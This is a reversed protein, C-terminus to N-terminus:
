LNVARQFGAGAAHVMFINPTTPGGPAPSMDAGPLAKWLRISVTLFSAEPVLAKGRRVNCAQCAGMFERTTLCDVSASYSKPM